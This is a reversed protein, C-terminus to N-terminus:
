LLRFGVYPIVQGIGLFLYDYYSMFFVFCVIAFIVIGRHKKITNFYCGILIPEAILFNYSIREANTSTVYALTRLVAGIVAISFLLRFSETDRVNKPVFLIPLLFPVTRIVLGISLGTAETSRLYSESYYSLFGFSSFFDQLTAFGLIVAFLGLYMTIRAWRYRRQEFLSHFVPILLYVLSIKHFLSAVLIWIVSKKRNGDLLFTLAFVFVSISLMQRVANFCLPYFLMMYAWVVLTPNAYKSIKKASICIFFITLFSVVTLLVSFPAGTFAVLQNILEYGFEIDRGGVGVYSNGYLFSEYYPLYTPLTDTGSSYRMGAFLAGPLAAVVLLVTSVFSDNPRNCALKVFIGAFLAVGWFSLLAMYDELIVIEM